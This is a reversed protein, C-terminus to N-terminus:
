QPVGRFQPLMRDGTARFTVQVPMGVRVSELDTDVINTFLRVKSDEELEILAVVYPLRDAFAQHFARDVTAFSYVQGRGSVEIFSLDDGHCRQCTIDPPYQLDQCTSCRQVVLSGNDAATWFPASVEDPVPVPRQTM